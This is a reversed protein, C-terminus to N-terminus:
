TLGLQTLLSEEIEQESRVDAGVAADVRAWKAAAAAQDEQRFGRVDAASDGLDMHSSASTAPPTTMCKVTTALWGM